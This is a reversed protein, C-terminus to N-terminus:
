EEGSVHRRILELHEPTYCKWRRFMEPENDRVARRVIERTVHIGEVGLAAVVESYTMWSRGAPLGYFDPWSAPMPDSM